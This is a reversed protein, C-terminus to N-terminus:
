SEKGKDIILGHLKEQNWEVKGGEFAIGLIKTEKGPCIIIREDNCTMTKMKEVLGVECEIKIYKIRKIGNPHEIKPPIQPITFASVLFPLGTPLAGCFGFGVKEGRVNKRTGNMIKSIEIGCEILKEKISELFDIKGEDPYKAEVAFDILGEKRKNWLLWREKMGKGYLIGMIPVTIILPRLTTFVEIFVDDNFWIFANPSYRPDRGWEVKFGLREIDKVAKKINNVRWHIHSLRLEPKNM